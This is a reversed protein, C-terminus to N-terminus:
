PRALNSLMSYLPNYELCLIRLVGLKSPKIKMNCLSKFMSKFHAIKFAHKAIVPLNANLLRSQWCQGYISLIQKLPMYQRPELLSSTPEEAVSEVAMRSLGMGKNKVCM